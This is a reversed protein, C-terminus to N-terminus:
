AGRPKRAVLREMVGLFRRELHEVVLGHEEVLDLPDRLLHDGDRRVTIPDGIREAWRVLRRPSRTHEFAAIRGGPRLVRIAEAFAARHDPITCLVICFVVTDFSGDEFPLATADGQRLDADPRERAARDRAIALM